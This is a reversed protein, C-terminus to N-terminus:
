QQVKEESSQEQEVLVDLMNSLVSISHKKWENEYWAVGYDVVEEATSPAGLTPFNVGFQQLVVEEKNALLPSVGVTPFVGHLSIYTGRVVKFSIHGSVEPRVHKYLENIMRTAQECIKIFHVCDDHTFEVFMLKRLGAQLAGLREQTRGVSQRWRTLCVVLEEKSMRAYKNTPDSTDLAQVEQLEEQTVLEQDMMDELPSIGVIM